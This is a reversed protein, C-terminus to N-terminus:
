FESSLLQCEKAPARKTKGLATVFRDFPAGSSFGVHGEFLGCAYDKLM